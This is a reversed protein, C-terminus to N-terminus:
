KIPAAVVRNRGEHKAQYLAQDALQLLQDFNGVAPSRQAVGISVTFSIDGFDSPFVNHECANRIREAHHMAGNLTSDPALILFEEGGIRCIYDPRRSYDRLLNALHKLVADGLAHGYTDNIVKFHDIDLMLLSLPQHYRESVAWERALHEMAYRRNHLGTLSDTLAAKEALKNAISLEMANTLLRDREQQIRQQARVVRLGAKLRARLIKPDVPKALYDDAGADFADVLNEDKRLATLVICYLSRGIETERLTRILQLGDIEPMLWDTIMIHPQYELVMKLAERGNSATHVENGDRSLLNKLMLLVTPDDDVLLITMAGSEKDTGLLEFQPSYAEESEQPLNIESFNTVEHVVLELLSSWEKWQVIMQDGLRIIDIEELGLHKGIDFMEPMLSCESESVFCLSSLRWALHLTWILRASRSNPEVEAQEPTEFQLVADTFFKPIGWDSMMAATVEGHRLGFHEIELSALHSGPKGQAQLLIESYKEPHISALALRGVQALLGCTFMEVPPAVRGDDGVLQAAVGMAVSHSWFTDYDFNKCTGYRHANVLSFALVIQRLSQIGISILVDPSISAVPRPRGFVPSNAMKLVRGVLGPDTQMVRIIEPLAIDSRQCLEIIKM